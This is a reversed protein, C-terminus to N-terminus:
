GLAGAIAERLAFDEPTTTPEYRGIVQGDKGILFKAFNWKIDGSGDPATDQSTLWAYLPHRGEGNVEIKETLPFDVGYTTSCFTKIEEATGPEQGGFQNCPFGVVSFGQDKLEAQLKALGDYQPTLGCRSAVNVALVVKGEYGSLPHENGDIDKLSFSHFSSM